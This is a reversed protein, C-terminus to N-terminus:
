RIRGWASTRGISELAIGVVSAFLGGGHPIDAGFYLADLSSDIAGGYDGCTTKYTAEVDFVRAM